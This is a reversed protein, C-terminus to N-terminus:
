AKDGTRDECPEPPEEYKDKFHKRRWLVLRYAACVGLPYLSLFQIIGLLRTLEPVQNGVQKFLIGMLIEPLIIILGM